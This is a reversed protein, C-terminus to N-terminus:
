RIYGHLSPIYEAESLKYMYMGDAATGHHHLSDIFVYNPIM